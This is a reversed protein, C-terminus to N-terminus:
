EVVVKKAFTKGNQSFSLIYIGKSLTRCDIQTEGKQQKGTVMEKGLVDYLKWDAPYNSQWKILGSTPNPYPIIDLIDETAAIGSICSSDVEADEFIYIPRSDATDTHVQVNCLQLGNVHRVYIGYAPLTDGLINYEPRESINEPVVFPIPLEGMGGPVTIQVNELWITEAKYGPIGTISSTINTAATAMINKLRVNKLVGPPPVEATDTYKAGREGLRIVIPVYIAEMSVNEITVNEVLGGDIVGINIGIEAMRNQILGLTSLQVTCDHVSINRFTGYSETGIKIARSYTALTCNRVEINECRIYPNTAKMVIPDNNADVFCNEILVNKCGDVSIGDQNGFAHNIVTLNNIYLTDINFNHMMWFASNKLTLNEYRVNHCNYLRFGFVRNSSTIFPTSLGNGNFTGKGSFSIDEVNEAYIFGRQVYSQTATSTPSPIVPYDALAGSGKLEAGSDIQLHVHSKMQITGSVFTGNAILVTGGGASHCADIAQQISTTNNTSGDGVAGYDQIAFIQADVSVSTIALAFLLIKKLM